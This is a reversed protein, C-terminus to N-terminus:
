RLKTLFSSYGALRQLCLYVLLYNAKKCKRWQCIVNLKFFLHVRYLIKKIKNLTKYVKLLMNFIYKNETKLNLVKM